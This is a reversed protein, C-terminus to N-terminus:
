YYILGIVFFVTLLAWIVGVIFAARGTLQPQKVPLACLYGLGMGILVLYNATVGLWLSIVIGLAGGVTMTTFPLNANRKVMGMYTLFIGCLTAISLSIHQIM